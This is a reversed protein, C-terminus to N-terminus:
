RAPAADRMLSTLASGAIVLLAGAWGLMAIREPAVLGPAIAHTAEVTAVTLLPTLALVVSVRSAEWHALAEAFAGYAGLTNIACYGLALAHFGDLGLLTAPRAIPLLVLSALAYIFLLIAASSLRNLLQKQAMAYIAWVLAAIGILASGFAYRMGAPPAASQDRFFMLLGVVIAGLGLWQWRNYREGFVLIGGLAMLLPAAQILLQANAPTTHHLGLLYFVYNGILMLGAVLLMAWTRGPLGSFASLGGRAALWIGVVLAAFAFRAWTLTYPDVQELAIKLAVPLTAWLAATVFALLLGLRWNGSPRHLAM